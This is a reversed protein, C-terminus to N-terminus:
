GLTNKNFISKRVSPIVFDGDENASGWITKNRAIAAGRASAEKDSKVRAEAALEAASKGSGVRDGGGIDGIGDRITDGLTKPSDWLGKAVKKYASGIKKLGGGM